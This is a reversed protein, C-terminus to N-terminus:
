PDEDMRPQTLLDAIAASIPQGAQTEMWLWQGNPNLDVLYHTGDEAVVFDLAAFAIGFHRLLRRVGAAVPDPLTGVKYHLGAYDARWDLAAAESEAHIEVPFLTTGVATVRVDHSRPCIEAQFQHATTAITPDAWRERPVRRTYLLGTLNGAADRPSRSHLPKTVIRRGVGEAFEVVEAPVNTVLTPPVALGCAAAAALHRPKSAAIRAVLPDNVWRVGPLSGLVGYLGERAQAACWREQEAGLGHRPTVEGPRRYWVARLEALDVARPGGRLRGSWRGGGDLAAWLRGDAPFVAPDFRTFAVGRERLCALVRDATPDLDATLVLVRPCEAM